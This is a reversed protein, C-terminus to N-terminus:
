SFARQRIKQEDGKGRWRRTVNRQIQFLLFNKNNKYKRMLILDGKM